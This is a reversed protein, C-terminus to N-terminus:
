QTGRPLRPPRLSCLVNNLIESCTTALGSSVDLVRLARNLADVALDVAQGIEELLIHLRSAIGTLVLILQLFAGTQLNM